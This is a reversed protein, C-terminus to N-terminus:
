TEPAFGDWHGAKPRHEYTGSGDLGDCCSWIKATGKEVTVGVNIWLKLYTHPPVTTEYAQTIRHTETSKSEFGGAAKVAEYELGGSVTLGVELTTEKDRSYTFKGELSSNSNDLEGGYLRATQERESSDKQIEVKDHVNVTIRDSDTEGQSDEVEVNIWQSGKEVATFRKTMTASSSSSTTSGSSASGLWTYTYPSKGNRVSATFECGTICRPPFWNVLAVDKPGYLKVSLPHGDPDAQALCTFSLCVLILLHRM